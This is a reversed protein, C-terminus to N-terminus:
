PSKTITIVLGNERCFKVVREGRANRTGLGFDGVERSEKGKSVIANFDEMIIVNNHSKSHKMLEDISAYVEEDDAKLTPMYVQIIVLNNSISEMEVLYLRSSYTVVNTVRTGWKKNLASEVGAQRNM